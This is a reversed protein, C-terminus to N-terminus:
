FFVFGQFVQIVSVLRILNYGLYLIISIFYIIFFLCIFPFYAFRGHSCLYNISCGRLPSTSIVKLHPGCMALQRSCRSPPLAPVQCFFSKFVSCKALYDLGVAATVSPRLLIVRLHLSAAGKGGTTKGGFSMYNGCCKIVFPFFWVIRLQPINM